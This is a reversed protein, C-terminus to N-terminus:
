ESGIGAGIKEDILEKGERDLHEYFGRFTGERFLEGYQSKDTISVMFELKGRLFELYEDWGGDFDDVIEALKGMRGYLTDFKQIETEQNYNKNLQNLEKNVEIIEEKIIKEIKQIKQSNETFTGFINLNYALYIVSFFGLLEFIGFKKWFKNKENQKLDYLSRDQDSSKRTRIQINKNRLM